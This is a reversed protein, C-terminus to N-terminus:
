DKRHLVGYTRGQPLLNFKEEFEKGSIKQPWLLNIKIKRTQNDIKVAKLDLLKSLDRIAAQEPKKLKEYLKGYRHALLEALKEASVGEKEELLINLLFVQREAMAKKRSSELKGFLENMQERFLLERLNLVLEEAARKCFTKIGRLGFKIFSTIDANNQATESLVRLYESNNEYYFSSVPIFIDEQLGTKRLMFAETARATTGNGDGFPHIVAIHCHLALAQILPDHERFKGSVTETLEEFAKGCEEGGEAGRREPQGFTVNDGNRRLEEPECHDDDCNQVIRRHIDKILEAGFPHDSPLEELWKYTQEAARAQRQSHTLGDEKENEPRFAEDLEDKTFEAGEIRSTGAAERRIQEAKWKETYDRTRPLINLAEIAAKAEALSVIVEEERYEIWSNPRRYKIVSM